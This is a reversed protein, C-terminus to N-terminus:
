GSRSRRRLYAVLESAAGEIHRRLARRAAALNRDRSAALIARHELQSRRRRDLQSHEVILYRDYADYLMDIQRGLRTAPPTGYLAAHFRRNLANRTSLADTSDLQDLLAEAADLRAGDNDAFSRELALCELAVRMQSIEMIDDPSLTAVVAGRHPVFDVLGETELRRLSERVPMRSVGLEAALSDQRLPSGAPLINGVIASRLAETVASATTRHVPRSKDLLTTLASSADTASMGATLGMEMKRRM